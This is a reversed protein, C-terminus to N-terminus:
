RADLLYAPAWWYEDLLKARVERFGGAALEQEWDARPQEFNTRMATPDFYGFMVPMLFGQVVLPESRHEALGLRYRELVHGVWRAAFPRSTDPVDFEVLLVRGAAQRLWAWVRARETRPLSQLSFTAQAVDCHLALTHAMYEQITSCVAECAVGREHLANATQELMARSPEVAIVHAVSPGLAPLLAMGDGVGIDLLTTREREAYVASLAESAARYLRQNSGARIFLSFAAPDVYVAQKGRECVHKLYTGAAAFLADDPALKSARASLTFAQEPRGAAFAALALYFCEDADPAHSQALELAAIFQRATCLPELRQVLESQYLSPAIV